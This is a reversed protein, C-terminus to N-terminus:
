YENYTYTVLMSSFLKFLSPKNDKLAYEKSVLSWFDDLLDYKDLLDLYENDDFGECLIKRLINEFKVNIEKTCVALIGVLITNNSTVNINLKKFKEVRSKANFFKSYKEVTGRFEIPINLEELIISIKDASFNYAYSFIDALFNNKLSSLSNNSYILYNNKNSELLYKTKIIPANDLLLLEGDINMNKIDEVFEKNEDIWLVLRIDDQSFLENLKGEIDNLNM